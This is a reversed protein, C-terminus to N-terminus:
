NGTIAKPLSIKNALFMINESMGRQKKGGVIKCILQCIHPASNLKRELIFAYKRLRLIFSIIHLLYELSIVFLDIIYM